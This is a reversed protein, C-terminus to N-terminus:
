WTLVPMPDAAMKVDFVIGGNNSLQRISPKQLFRPSYGVPTAGEIIFLSLQIRINMEFM